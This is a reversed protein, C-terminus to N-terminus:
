LALYFTLVYYKEYFFFFFYYYNYRLFSSSNLFVDRFSSRSLFLSLVNIGGDTLLVLRDKFSLKDDYARSKGEGDKVRLRLCACVFPSFFPLVLIFLLTRLICSSSM